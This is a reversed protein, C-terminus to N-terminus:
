LNFFIFADDSGAGTYDNLLFPKIFEDNAGEAYSSEIAERWSGIKTGVGKIIADYALQTREWRKDRDMAYYRGVVVGLKGVGIRDLGEQLFQMHTLASKPATDRGDTFAHVVVDSFGQRRCAELIAHCHRTVAHVGEEQILGMLHLKSKRAKATEIAKLITANNFFEGDRVSKDIRTLSQYVVRGAGINLHGVESNGMTGAPLGVDEGSTTLSTTPYESEYKDAWPTNAVYIANSPEPNGKGWGDRIIICLPKPSM